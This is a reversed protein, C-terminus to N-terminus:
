DVMRGELFMYVYICLNFMYVYFINFIFSRM